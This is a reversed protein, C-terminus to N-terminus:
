AWCGDFEWRVVHGGRSPNPSSDVLRVGEADPQSRWDDCRNMEHDFAEVAAANEGPIKESKARLKRREGEDDIVGKRDVESRHEGERKEAAVDLNCRQRVERGEQEM